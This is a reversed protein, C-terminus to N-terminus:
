YIWLLVDVTCYLLYYLYNQWCLSNNKCCVNAICYTLMTVPAKIKLSDLDRGTVPILHCHCLFGIKFWRLEQFATWFNEYVSELADESQPQTTQVMQPPLLPCTVLQLNLQKQSLLFHSLAGSSWVSRKKPSRKRPNLKTKSQSEAPLQPTWCMM